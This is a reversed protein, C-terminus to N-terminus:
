RRCHIGQGGSPRLPGCRSGVDRTPSALLPDGSSEVTGWSEICSSAIIEPEGDVVGSTLQGIPSVAQEVLPEVAHASRRLSGSLQPAQPVTQSIPWTQALPAHAHGAPRVAHTPAHTSACVSVLLQPIHPRAHM